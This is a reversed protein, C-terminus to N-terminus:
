KKKVRVIRRAVTSEENDTKVTIRRSGLVERLRKQQTESLQAVLQKIGEPNTAYIQRIGRGFFTYEDVSQLPGKVKELVKNIAELSNEPVDNDVSGCYSEEEAEKDEEMEADKADESINAQKALVNLAAELMKLRASDLCPPLEPEALLTALGVVLVKIDYAGEYSPVGEFLMEFVKETVGLDQLKNLTLKISNCVSCLLANLIERSLYDASPEENLRKLFREVIEPIYPALVTHDINQLIIQFFIAGEANHQEIPDMKSCLSELAFRMFTELCEKSSAIFEKGYHVYANLVPLLISLTMQYKNFVYALDPFALKTVESIGKRHEILLTIVHIIDDDFDIDKANVLCKFTPSIIREVENLYAPFFAKQECIAKVLNWAQTVESTVRLGKEMIKGFERGIKAVLTELLEVVKGSVSAPHKEVVTALVEYFGPVNVTPVMNCLSPLIAEVFAKTKAKFDSAKVLTQLSDACQSALAEEAAMGAFLFKVVMGFFEEGVKFLNSKYRGFLLALRSKVLSSSSGFLALANGAVTAEVLGLLDERVGIQKMLVALAMICTEAILEPSNKALFPSDISFPSLTPFEKLLELSAERACAGKIAECCFNCAFTLSGDINECVSDLLKAAETKVTESDKNECSDAALNIFNRPNCRMDKIEEPTSRLLLLAVNVIINGRGQYFIAYFNNDATFISLFALLQAIVRSSARKKVRKELNHYDTVCLSTLTTVVVPFLKGCCEYLPFGSLEGRPMDKFASRMVGNVLQLCVEKMSNLEYDLPKVGTVSLICNPQQSNILVTSQLALTFAAAFDKSGFYCALAAPKSEATKDFISLNADAWEKIIRVAKFLELEVKPYNVGNNEVAAKSLNALQNVVNLILPLALLLIDALSKALEAFEALRALTKTLCILIFGASPILESQELAACVMSLVPAVIEDVSRPHM